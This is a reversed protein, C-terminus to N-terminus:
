PSDGAEDLRSGEARFDVWFQGSQKEYLGAALEGEIKRRFKEAM